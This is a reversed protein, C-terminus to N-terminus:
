GLFIGCTLFSKLLLKKKNKKMVDKRRIKHNKKVYAM